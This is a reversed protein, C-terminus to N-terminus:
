RERFLELVVASDPGVSFLEGAPIVDGTFINRMTSFGETVEAYDKPDVQCSGTENNNLVVMVASDENYRFFVYLGDSPVFHVLKGDHLVETDKRWNLLNKLYDFAENEQGTRGSATFADRPDGPWGGPFDERIYGHGTHEEGTMLIETGYYIMPIGRTTLLLAMGMKWSDFNEHVLTFYRSLDHNDAFIVTSFPDPYLFDQSLVYYFRALGGTWSDEENFANALAYHMPFDTVAPLHTNEGFYEKENEMFYATHSEKQLWTEGVVNFDPYETMVRRVWRRMVDEYSYPYTDMRIGDLGAYEIWWISNQILYNALFPNRQDLDPMTKDFWGALMKNRDKESAHPDMVTEGRYNSPTYEPFRHIWDQSPLDAMWWHYSGCHNFVQDMIVKIGRDHCEKVLELYDDNTGFRPDIRYHDTIAYGHYSYAPMNNELLPNMWLATIGLDALYDLKNRIGAIDGGHRGNPDSRDAKELMAPHSDNLTDGNAFRDPMLLYIVDSNDFGKRRESDEGRARIEYYVTSVVERNYEFILNVFFDKRQPEIELDIFLYNPNKVTHVGKLKVDPHDTLVNLESLNDGYVLLQLSPDAMSSWWFPPEIRTIREQAPMRLAILLIAVLYFCRNMKSNILMKTMVKM